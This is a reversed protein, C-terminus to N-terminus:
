FEHNIKCISIPAYKLNIQHGLFVSLVHIFQFRWDYRIRLLPTNQAKYYGTLMYICKVGNYFLFDETTSLQTIGAHSVLKKM